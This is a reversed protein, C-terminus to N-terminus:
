IYSVIALFGTFTEAFFDTLAAGFAALTTALAFFVTFVDFGALAVLGTALFDTFGAFDTFDAGALCFLTAFGTALFTAFGTALFDALGAAVKRRCIRPRPAEAAGHVPM